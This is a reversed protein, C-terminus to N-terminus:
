DLFYVDQLLRVAYATLGFRIRKRQDVDEITLAWMHNTVFQRDTPFSADFDGMAFTFSNGDVSADKREESM